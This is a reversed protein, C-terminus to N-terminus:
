HTLYVLGEYGVPISQVVLGVLKNVDSGKPSHKVCDRLIDTGVVVVGNGTASTNTSMTIIDLVHSSVSMFLISQESVKYRGM